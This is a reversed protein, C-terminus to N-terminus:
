LLLISISVAGNLAAWPNDHLQRIMWMAIQYAYDAIQRFINIVSAITTGIAGFAEREEVDVQGGTGLIEGGVM